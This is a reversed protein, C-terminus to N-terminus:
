ALVLTYLRSGALSNMVRDELTMVSDVALEPAEAALLSQLMPVYGIPDLETRMVFIPDFGLNTSDITIQRISAFLEPQTPAKIDQRMDKVVGVVEWDADADPFRIGGARPGRQPILIGIPSDGLYQRAFTENVVVAPPTQQTDRDTLTRGAVLQLRMAAFYDPSVVRQAAEVNVAVAPDQPSPMTFATFGGFSLFPLATGYAAYAVGPVARLRELVAEAVQNRREAPYDPPLPLRWSLVNVPDYGRDAQLLSFFSRALLSAGVLLVCAIAIQGAMILSRTRTFSSHEGGGAPAVRHESLSEALRVRRAHRAPLLAYFASAGLSIALAFLLVRVDIAVADLRPFGAPLVTPLLQQLAAALAVGAAGGSLGVVLNEILLQRALRGHGAGIAARVAMERRRGTARALQLNAVNATSVVLLLCVAALLILVAPRVDATQAELERRAIVEIPGVAGFLAVAAQGMYEGSRARATAEAAAQEPTSGDRLRALARFIVGVKYGEPTTVAPVTWATWARTERDPFVFDSPMVGVIEYPRGNLQVVQLLVERQGGFREQWLGHSLIVLNPGGRRGDEDRFLRGILPQARLMAFLNTTIPNIPVRVPDGAGTLTATQTLWGGIDEITSPRDSWARFTANTVTGAVRPTRAGRTETVRVLRDADAWTLPKFLVGYALSFLVTTAGIGLAMTLIALVSFGPHRVLLRVGQRVDTGFRDVLGLGLAERGLEKWRAPDGMERRARHAASARDLGTAALDEARAEVHFQLEADMERETRARLFFARIFSRLQHLATM